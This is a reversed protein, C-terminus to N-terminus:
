TRHPGCARRSDCNPTAARTGRPRGSVTDRERPAARPACRRRRNGAPREARRPWSRSWRRHRASCSAHAASRATAFYQRESRRETSACRGARRVPRPNPRACTGPWHRGGNRPAAACGIDVARKRRFASASRFRGSRARCARPRCPSRTPRGLARGFGARRSASPVRRLEPHRRSTIGSGARM